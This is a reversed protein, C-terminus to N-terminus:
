DVQGRRNETSQNKKESPQFTDGRGRGPMTRLGSDWLKQLVQASTINEYKAIAAVEPASFAHLHLEPIERRAREAIETYYDLKIEPNHGGQLLVTTAGNHYSTKMMEILKDTELTYSDAAGAPRWFACFLCETDCVNTYNPNTDCVFTVTKGSNNRERCLSALAGLQPLTANELLELGREPTM